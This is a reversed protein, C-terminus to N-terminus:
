RQGAEVAETPAGGVQAADPLAARGVEEEGSAAGEDEGVARRRVGPHTVDHPLRPVDHRARHPPRSRPHGRGDERLLRRARPGGGGDDRHSGAPRRRRCGRRRETVDDAGDVDDRQLAHLLRRCPHCM